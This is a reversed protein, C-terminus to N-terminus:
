LNEISIKVRIKKQIDPVYITNSDCSVCRHLDIMMSTYSDIWLPYGQNTWGAVTQYALGVKEAFGKKTIGVESLIEKFRVNDM